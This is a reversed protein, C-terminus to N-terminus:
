KVFPLKSNEVTSTILFIMWPLLSVATITFAVKLAGFKIKLIESNRWVQGLLDRVYTDDSTQLFEHIFNAETRKAVEHFYVLSGAGGKLHPFACRYVFFYSFGLLALTAAAPALLKWNGLDVEHINVAVLALLSTNMAFLFSCRTDVRAFFALVRDLQKNALDLNNM